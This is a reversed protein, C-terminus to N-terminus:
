EDARDEEASAFLWERARALHDIDGPRSFRDDSDLFVYPTSPSAYESLLRLLGAHAAAALAAPQGKGAQCIECPVQGGALHVYVLEAVKQCHLGAFAGAMALWAELPLQPAHGSDVAKQPPIAGTKYDLIRLSNDALQDIRDARATLTFEEGNIKLVARASCEHHQSKLNLRWQREQDLFWASIREFQPWWFAAVQQDYFFPAYVQRGCALLRDLADSGLEGCCEEGFRRLADHLLSGRDAAGLRRALPDLEELQLIKEVYLHYPNSILRGIRTVSLSKPRAASPPKPRPQRAPPQKPRHDLAAAWGRWRSSPHSKFDLEAATLLANFRTMWRSPVVPVGDIKRSWTLFVKPASFNQIFDHASLGIRRDSAPLKVQVRMSRSLWPDIETETPWVGTNLGSLIVVDPRMLRAELLGMISLRPHDDQKPRVIRAALEGTILAGYDAPSILPAQDANDLLSGFLESLAEGDDGRWLLNLGDQNVALAEACELHSQLFRRLPAQKNVALLELFSSAAADLRDILGAIANWDDPSIRRLCSHVPDHESFSSERANRKRQLSARLGSLNRPEAAGRLLAMELKGSLVALAERSLGLRLLPHKLLEAFQLTAFRSLGLDLILRMFAGASTQALAEGGTDNIDISWRKLEAKVRRALRRSPTILSATLGPTELSSRMIMAIVRAEERQDATEILEVGHMARGIADRQRRLGQWWRDTTAAPRMLESALWLRAQDAEAVSIGPFIQVNARDIGLLGLLRKLGFQPHSPEDDVAQWGESDLEFDLGPLIVAGEGLRSIVRLLNATAPISGTSGAAIVPGGSGEVELKAAERRLLLSRHEAHGMVGWETMCQPLRRRVIALFDLMALRHEAFDAGVLKDLEDLFIEETEFDDVLRGLSRALTFVQGPFRVLARALMTHSNAQAWESILRALLFKRQTPSIAPSLELDIDSSPAFIFEGEDVDGIPRIRPLIAANVSQADLFVRALERVARRTPLLITWRSLEAASPKRGTSMPFGNELVARALTPLFASTSPISFVRAADTAAIM